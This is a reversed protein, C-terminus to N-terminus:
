MAAVWVHETCLSVECVDCVNNGDEDKHGTAPITAQAELIEGCDSCKSGATIGDETCTAAKAEGIAETNAHSCVEYTIEISSLYAAGGTVVIAFYRDTTDFEWTAGSTTVNKSTASSTDPTSNKNYPTASTLVYFDRYTTKQATLTISVIKGPLADTNFICYGNNQSVNIQISSATIAYIYGSGKITEGTTATDSWDYWGYNGSVEGFSERDITITAPQKEGCETCVGNEFNHGTAPIVTQAELTVGCESCKLGATIGDETCTAEKAEGIPENIDHPCESPVEGGTEVSAYTVTVGEIRTQATTTFVVSNTSNNSDATWKTGSITGSDPTVKSLTYTGNMTFQITKIEYGDPVSVTMSNTVSATGYFRVCTSDWRPSTTHTNKEFVVSVDTTEDSFPISDMNTGSGGSFGITVSNEAAGATLVFVSTLTAILLVVLVLPTLTKLLKNKM